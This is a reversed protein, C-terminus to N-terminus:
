GRDGLEKAVQRIMKSLDEDEVLTAAEDASFWLRTREDSEDWRAHVTDVELLYVEVIVGGSRKQHEYRGVPQNSLRGSVGAEEMTEASATQRPSQDSEIMGKPIVWRRTSRSTILLVEVGESTRRVPIAGAHTLPQSTNM